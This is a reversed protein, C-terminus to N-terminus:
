SRRMASTSRTWYEVILLTRPGKMEPSRAPCAQVWPEPDIPTAVRLHSRHQDQHNTSHWSRPSAAGENLGLSVRWHKSAQKTPV